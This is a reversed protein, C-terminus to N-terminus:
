FRFYFQTLPNQTTIMRINLNKKTLLLLFWRRTRFVFYFLAFYYYRLHCWKSKVYISTSSPSINFPTIWNRELYFYVAVGSSQDMYNHSWLMQQVAVVILSLLVYELLSVWVCMKRRWLLFHFFQFILGFYLIQGDGIGVLPKSIGRIKVNLLVRKM